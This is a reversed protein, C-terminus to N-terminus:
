HFTRISKCILLESLILRAMPMLKPTMYSQSM